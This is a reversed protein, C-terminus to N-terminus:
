SIPFTMEARFLNEDTTFTLSGGMLETLSSAISLGLGSGESHRAADGRVFREELEEGSLTLEERSENEFVACVSEGSAKLSIQVTSEPKAYKAINGFLNELVRWLQSGDAEIFVNSELDLNTHLAADAFRDEFEGDAMRIMQCLDIREMNLEVNGSNIRSAEILDNILDKLRNSKRALIELYEEAKENHLDERQLLGIYSIISTLPTKLDHSVNTILEAKLRESRVMAEVAEELGEGMENVAEGMELSDGTLSQTDIRYDLKGTSIERLGQRVSLKGVQDRLLYLLVAADMVLVVALLAPRPWRVLLFHFGVFVIFAALVRGSTVRAELVQTSVRVVTYLLSGRWLQEHKFRRAASLVAYLFLEYLVVVAAIRWAAGLGAPILHHLIWRAALLWLIGAAAILGAAAETPLLDPGSLPKLTGDPARGTLRISWALLLILLLMMVGGTVIAGIVLPGRQQYSQYDEHLADGVPYSRDVAILIRENAGTLNSDIFNSVVRESLSDEPNAVMIDMTRVGDFLLTMDEDSLIEERAQAMGSADLNTYINKSTTNEVYYRLNSPAQASSAGEPEALEATYARYRAQLDRSAQVLNTYYGLLTGYPDAAARATSELSRGSIPKIIELEVTQSILWDWDRRTSSTGRMARDTVDALAGAQPAYNILDSMRYTTNENRNSAETIGAAYQRIDIEKNLDTESNTQFLILNQECSIKRRLIDEVDRLFVATEEFPRGLESIDYTGDTWYGITLICVALVAACVGQLIALRVKRGTSNKPPVKM